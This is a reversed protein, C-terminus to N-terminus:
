ELGLEMLWKVYQDQDYREEVIRKAELGIRARAEEDDLWKIVADAM